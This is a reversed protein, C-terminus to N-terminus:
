YQKKKKVERRCTVDWKEAPTTCHAASQVWFDTIEEYPNISKEWPDGTLSGELNLLTSEPTLLSTKHTLICKYLEWHNTSQKRPWYVTRLSWNVIRLPWYVTRIPWYLTRLPRYSNYPSQQWYVARLLWYVTRLALYVERLPWCVARTPLYM